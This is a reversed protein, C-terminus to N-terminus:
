GGGLTQYSRRSKFGCVKRCRFRFGVHRGIEGREWIGMKTQNATNGILFTM